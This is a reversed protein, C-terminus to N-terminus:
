SVMLPTAGTQSDIDDIHKQVEPSNFLENLGFHAALHAITWSQHELLTNCLKQLIAVTCQFPKLFITKNNLWVEILVRTHLFLFEFFPVLSFAVM